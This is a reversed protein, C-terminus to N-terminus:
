AYYRAQAIHAKEIKKSKKVEHLCYKEDVFDIRNDADISVDKQKSNYYTKDIWKGIRVDENYKEFSVQRSFLWLKRRCIYYYAYITGNM